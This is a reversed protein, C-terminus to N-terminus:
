NKKSVELVPRPDFVVRLSVVKGEEVHYWGCCFLKTGSINLDYLLCVDAGDVFTKRIDYKLRMEEM